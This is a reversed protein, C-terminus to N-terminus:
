ALYDDIANICRKISNLSKDVGSDAKVAFSQSASLMSNISDAVKLRSHEMREQKDQLRTLLRESGRIEDEAKMKETRGNSIIRKMESVDNKLQSIENQLDAIQREERFLLQRVQRIREQIGDKEDGELEAASSVIESIQKRICVAEAECVALQERAAKSKQESTKLQVEEQKIKAELQEIKAKWQNIRAIAGAVKNAIKQMELEVSASIDTAYQEFRMILGSIDLQYDGLASKVNLLADKSVNVVIM